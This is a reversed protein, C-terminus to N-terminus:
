PEPATRAKPGHWYIHIAIGWCVGKGGGVIVGISAEELVSEMPILTVEHKHM